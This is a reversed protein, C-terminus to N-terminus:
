HRLAPRGGLTYIKAPKKKRPGTSRRFPHARVPPADPTAPEVHLLHRDLYIHFDGNPQQCVEVKKGAYGLGSAPRPLQVPMNPLAAIVHDNGVKREYRLSFIYNLDLRSDLKRWAVGSRAAPKVFQLNYDALFRALVTNAQDLTAAQALRLESTLRDQLTRWTREIRGKAQPSRAVVAEIGMEELARGVQTPFQRGALQEAVSWNKDNRQMTGHQDRYIALPVGATEVLNRFLRLYGASDEHEFQFHAVPIRNTADDAFGFLTLSPGRSELWDHRSADLQLLMGEQPRRERRSRYKPPRRKRPSRLGAERLIRRVSPRSLQLGEAKTLKEHLHSDNFGVYKGRALDLVKQRVEQDLTNAPERGTNGHHVWAADRDEYVSKLRKVQRESLQLLEAARATTLRGQVANEIVKVRQLEKQSLTV